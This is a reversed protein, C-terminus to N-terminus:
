LFTDGREAAPPIPAPEGPDSVLKELWWNAGNYLCTVDRCERSADFGDLMEALERAAGAGDADGLRARAVGRHAPCNFRGSPALVQRLAQVHCTRPQRTLDRWNGQELVRLNTSVHIRLGDGAAARARDLEVRIRECVDAVGATARAPEMVEAGSAERALVPKYAVYDFGYRRAREAALAIEDVNDRLAVGDRAAGEWVIIYSYGVRIRPNARKIRPVWSCIEDLSVGGRPRHLAQFREDSGADLSLRVWDGEALAPAAETLARGRSGNSVVAVQLSLGKLFRVTRAFAPHLTPEGGGILIVSRLGRRAMARVAGRLSAEDFRQRTNLVDWDICHDCRFNCATTLDLNISIPALDPPAPEKRGAARERLVARRWRVYAEVQPLLSPQRLKEAFDHIPDTM